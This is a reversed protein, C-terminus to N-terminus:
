DAVQFTIKLNGGSIKKPTFNFFFTQSGKNREPHGGSNKKQNILWIIIM